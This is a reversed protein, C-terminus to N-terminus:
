RWSISRARARRTGAGRAARDAPRHVLRRLRDPRDAERVQARTVDRINTKEMSIVRPDSRLKWALQNTGVDIAYVKAVGRQLLCDTFGGTSAGVDLAIRGAVPVAFHDLAKALKLGGRSVYPHPSAACKSRRTKRSPM